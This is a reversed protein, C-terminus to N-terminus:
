YTQFVHALVIGAYGAVVLKAAVVSVHEWAFTKRAWAKAAGMGMASERNTQAVTKM